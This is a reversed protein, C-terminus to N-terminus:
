PGPASRVIPLSDAFGGAVGNRIVAGAGSARTAVVGARMMNLEIYTMCRELHEGGDILTSHYRGEWYAGSRDKRRNYYQAFQGEARQMWLSIGDPDESRALLHAHNSTICYSLLRVSTDHLTKWLVHSLRGSRDWFAAPVTPRSM